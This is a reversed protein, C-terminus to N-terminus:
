EGGNIRSSLWYITFSFLIVLNILLPDSTEESSDSSSTESSFYIISNESLLKFNVDNIALKNPSGQNWFIFYHMIIKQIPKALSYIIYIILNVYVLLLWYATYLLVFRFRKIILVYFPAKNTIIFAAFSFCSQQTFVIQNIQM